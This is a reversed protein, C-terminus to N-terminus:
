KGVNNWDCVTVPVQLYGHQHLWLIALLVAVQAPFFWPKAIVANARSGAAKISRVLTAGVARTRSQAGAIVVGLAPLSAARFVARIQM